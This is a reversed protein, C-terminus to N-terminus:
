SQRPGITFARPWRRPRSSSRDRAQFDASATLLPIVLQWRPTRLLGGTRAPAYSRRGYVQPKASAAPGPLHRASPWPSSFLAYVPLCALLFLIRLAPRLRQVACWDLIRARCASLNCKRAPPDPLRRHPAGGAAVPSRRQGPSVAREWSDVSMGPNFM